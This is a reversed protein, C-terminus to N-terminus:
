NEATDFTTAREVPIGILPYQICFLLVRDVLDLFMYFLFVFHVFRNVDISAPLLHSKNTVVNAPPECLQIRVRETFTSVNMRLSM